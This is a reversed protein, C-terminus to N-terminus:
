PGRKVTKTVNIATKLTIFIVRCSESTSLNVSWTKMLSRIEKSDFTLCAM